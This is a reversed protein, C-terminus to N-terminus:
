RRSREFESRLGVLCTRMDSGCKIDIPHGHELTMDRLDRSIALLRYWDSLENTMKVRTVSDIGGMRMEEIVETPGITQTASTDLLNPKFGELTVDADFVSGIAEVLRTFYGDDHLCENSMNGVRQFTTNTVAQGTLYLHCLFEFNSLTASIVADLYHRYVNRASSLGSNIVHRLYTRNICLVGNQSTGAIDDYEVFRVGAHVFAHVSKAREKMADDHNWYVEHAFWESSASCIVRHRNGNLGLATFARGIDSTFTGYTEYPKNVDARSPILVQKTNKHLTGGIIVTDHALAKDKFLRNLEGADYSDLHTSEDDDVFVCSPSVRFAPAYHCSRDFQRTREHEGYPTSVFAKYKELQEDTM